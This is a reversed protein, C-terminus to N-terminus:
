VPTVKQIFVGLHQIAQRAEPLFRAAFQWVHFMGPWVELEVKVGKANARKAFQQCESLLIEDSGVQILVPPLHALEGNFPSLGPQSRDNQAAYHHAFFHVREATLLPDVFRNDATSSLSCSLDLWPSLCAAGAPLPLGKDRIAQLLSMTLGGGASDGAIVIKEPSVKEAMLYNYVDLADELAAPYPHEPALRYDVMLIQAHAARGIRAALELHSHSSGIAYGGGHLYLIVRASCHKTHNVWLVPIHKIKMGDVQFNRPAKIILHSAKSLFRYVHMNNPIFRMSHRIFSKILKARGM